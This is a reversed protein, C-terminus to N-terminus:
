LIVFLLVYKFWAALAEELTITKESKWKPDTTNFRCDIRIMSGKRPANRDEIWFACGTILLFIAMLPYSFLLLTRRGFKDITYLAPLAGLWNLMGFGWTALLADTPSFGSEAFINSSYYAIANIGCFQQM